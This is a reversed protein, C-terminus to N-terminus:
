ADESSREAELEWDVNLPGKVEVPGMLYVTNEEGEDVDYGEERMTAVAKYKMRGTSKSKGKRVFGLDCMANCIRSLKQPTHQALVTDYLQIESTTLAEKANLLVDLVRFELDRNVKDSYKSVKRM